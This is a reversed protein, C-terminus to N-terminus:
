ETRKGDKEGVIVVEWTPRLTGDPNTVEIAKRKPECYSMLEAAAWASQRPEIREMGSGWCSQCTRVGSFTQGGRPQFKTKGAGRCVACPIKNMVTLALYELYDCGMEALRDKITQTSKNPTGKRRGAGEPRPKGKPWAM